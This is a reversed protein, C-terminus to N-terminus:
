IISPSDPFAGLLLINDTHKHLHCLYLALYSTKKPSYDHETVQGSDM